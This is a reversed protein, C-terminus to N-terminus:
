KNKQSFSPSALYNLLVHCFPCIFICEIAVCQGKGLRGRLTSFLEAHFILSPLKSLAMIVWPVTELVYECM